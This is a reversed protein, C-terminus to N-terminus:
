SDEGSMEKLLRAKENEGHIEGVTILKEAVSSRGHRSGDGTAEARDLTANMERRWEELMEAELQAILEERTHNWHTFNDVISSWRCFKGNPQKLIRSGM